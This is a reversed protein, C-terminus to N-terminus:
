SESQANYWDIDETGSFGTSTLTHDWVMEGDRAGIRWTCDGDTLIAYTPNSSVSLGIPSLIKLPSLLM